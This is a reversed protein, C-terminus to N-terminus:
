EAAADTIPTPEGRAGAIAWAATEASVGAYSGQKSTSIGYRQRMEGLLKAMQGGAAVAEVVPVKTGGILSYGCASFAAYSGCATVIVEAGDDILGRAVKEFEPIVRGRLVKEDTFWDVGSEYFGPSRVPRHSVARDELGYARLNREVMAVSANDLTIVGFRRGLLCAVHMASETIGVVPISLMDRAQQLAPDNGCLIIAVDCGNEGAKALGDLMGVTNYADLSFCNTIYSSRDNYHVQLQADPGLIDRLLKIQRDYVISMSSGVMKDNEPRPWINQIHVKLAM